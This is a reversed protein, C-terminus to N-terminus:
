HVSMSEAFCQLTRSRIAPSLMEFDYGLITSVGKNSNLVVGIAQIERADEFSIVKQGNLEFDLVRCHPAKKLLEDFFFNQDFLPAPVMLCRFDQDIMKKFSNKDRRNLCTIFQNLFSKQPNENRWIMKFSDRSEYYKEMFFQSRQYLDRVDTLSLEMIHRIEETQIGLVRLGVFAVREEFSLCQLKTLFGINFSEVQNVLSGRKLEEINQEDKVSRWFVEGTIFPSILKDEDIRWPTKKVLTKELEKYALQYAINRAPFPCNGKPLNLFTELLINQVMDEADASVGCIRYVFSFLYPRLDKLYNNIATSKIKSLKKRM